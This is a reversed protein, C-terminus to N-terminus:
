TGAGANRAWLEIGANPKRAGGGSVRERDGSGSEILGFHGVRARLIRTRHEGGSRWGRQVAVAGVFPQQQHILHAVTNM